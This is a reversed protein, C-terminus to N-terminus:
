LECIFEKEDSFQNEIEKFKEINEIALDVLFPDFSIGSEDEFYGIIEEYSWQKKYCRESRLADFVDAITTIRAEISIEEGILGRPYGEGNWKEHHQHSIKGAIKCLELNSEKFMNYGLSTHSKMHEFEENTLKGPKNLIADPIAVKGIDHMPSAMRLMEAQQISLGYELALMYSYEAVRKVHNGTEGSRNEGVTGLALVIERETDALDKKMEIIDTVDTRVSLYEIIKGSTNKIPVIKLKSYLPTGDKKVSELFSDWVHGSKITKWLNDFVEPKTNPSRMISHTNGILEEKSYGTSEVFKDNVFTIVGLLNTKSVMAEDEFVKSYQENKHTEEVTKNSIIQCPVCKMLYQKILNLNKIIKM